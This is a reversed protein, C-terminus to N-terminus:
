RIPERWFRGRGAAKFARKAWALRFPDRLQKGNTLRFHTAFHYCVAFEPKPSTTRTFKRLVGVSRFYRRFPPSSTRRVTRWRGGVSEAAVEGKPM